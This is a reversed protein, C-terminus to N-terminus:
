AEAWRPCLGEFLGLNSHGPSNRRAVVIVGLVLADCISFEPLLISSDRRHMESWKLTSERGSPPQSGLGVSGQAARMGQTNTVDAAGVRRM